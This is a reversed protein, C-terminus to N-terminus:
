SEQAAINQLAATLALEEAASLFAALDHIVVLEEALPLVGSVLRLGPVLSPAEPPTEATVPPATGLTLVEQVEDVLLAVRRALQPGPTLAVILKDRLKVSRDPIGFRRSLAFVPLVEGALNIVGYVAHPAEPLPTVDVAPLVREVSALPLACLTNALRFLLYQPPLEM